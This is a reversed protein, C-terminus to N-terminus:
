RAIGCVRSIWDLSLPAFADFLDNHGLGPFSHFERPKNALEYLKKGQSPPVIHDQSGNAVLLPSHINRIKLQNNFRDLVLFSAPFIPLHTQAVSPLSLYPALLMVGAVPFEEAMQVAVGTGLSHGFLIIRRTEVGHTQLYHMYARGDSYLGKETPTGPLGSYGRYEALLFGYGAAIYPDAVPAATYLRDANGHFFVITFPRTTAQAYWAKLHLGDETRVSIEKFARNAHAQSLPVYSHSPFYILRRQTVFLVAVLVLYSVVVVGISITLLKVHDGHSGAGPDAASIRLSSRLASSEQASQVRARPKARMTEFSLKQRPEEPHGFHM